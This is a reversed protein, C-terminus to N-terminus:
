HVYTSQSLIHVVTAWNTVQECDSAGTCGGILSGGRISQKEVVKRLQRKCSGKGVVTGVATRTQGKEIGRAESVIRRLSQSEDEVVQASLLARSGENGVATM